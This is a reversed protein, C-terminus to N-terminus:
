APASSKLSKYLWLFASIAATEEVPATEQAATENQENFFADFDFDEFNFEKEDNFLNNLDDKQEEKAPELSKKEETAKDFDVAEVKEDELSFKEDVLTDEYKEEAFDNKRM